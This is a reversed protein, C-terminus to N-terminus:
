VIAGLPSKDAINLEALLNKIVLPIQSINEGAVLSFCPLTKVLNSMADFESHAAGSNQFISSPALAHLAAARSIPEIRAKSEKQVTPVLVARLPFDPELFEPAHEGLFFLIKEKEIQDLNSAFEALDPFRELDRPGKLKATQYMSYVHPSPNSTVICYDDGAYKLTSGICSLCSTSKGSGGKGVLLVGGDATGVAGGHVVQFGRSTFWWNMITRLPAGTEYYPISRADRVWFLAEGKQLDLMSLGATEGLNFVTRIRDNNFGRIEGRALYDDHSWPPPPMQAGTSVSDWVKITFDNALGTAHSLHQFSRGLLSQLLRSSFSLRINSEAIDIDQNIWDGTGLVSDASEIVSQFFDSPSLM